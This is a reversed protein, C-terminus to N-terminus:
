WAIRDRRSFLQLSLHPIRGGGVSRSEKMWVERGRFWCRPHSVVALSSYCQLNGMYYWIFTNLYILLHQFVTIKICCQSIAEWLFNNWSSLLFFIIKLLWCKQKVTQMSCSVFIAFFSELPLIFSSWSEALRLPLVQSPSSWSVLCSVLNNVGLDWWSM